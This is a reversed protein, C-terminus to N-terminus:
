NRNEIPAWPACGNQAERRPWRDLTSSSWIVTMFDAAHRTPIPIDSMADIACAWPLTFTDAGGDAAVFGVFDAEPLLSDVGDTWVAVTFLSDDQRAAPIPSGVFVDIGDQEVRDPKNLTVTAM